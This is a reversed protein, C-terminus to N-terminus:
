SIGRIRRLSAIFGGKRGHRIFNKAAEPHIGCFVLTRRLTNIISWKVLTRSPYRKLWQESHGVVAGSLARSRYEMANRSWDFYRGNIESERGSYSNQRLGSPIAVVSLCSVMEIRKGSKWARYCWDQSPMNYLERAPRWAGVDEITARTALWSSAPTLLLPTYRGEPTAGVIRSSGDAQVSNVLSFVMDCDRTRIAETLTALHDDLWIDDHNIFDIYHGNCRAVGDNNPASQEGFNVPRNHYSIREDRETFSRMLQDTDDTCADGIVLLEWDELSQQLVSEIAYILVNSRNYTSLVISVLPSSETM